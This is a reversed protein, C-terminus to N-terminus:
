LVAVASHYRHIEYMDVRPNVERAVMAKEELPDAM